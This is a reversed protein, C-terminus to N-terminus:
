KVAEGVIHPVQYGFPAKITFSQCSLFSFAAQDLVEGTDRSPDCGDALFRWLPRIFEQFKRTKTGKEAGVHEIFIFKGGPKLVRKIEELATQQAGVSCLVLTCV